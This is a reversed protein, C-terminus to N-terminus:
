NKEEIYNDVPIKIVMKKGDPSEVRLWITIKSEIAEITVSGNLSEGNKESMDAKMIMRGNKYPQKWDCTMEKVFGRLTDMVDDGHLIMVEKKNTYVMVKVNKTDQINGAEDMFDAKQASWSIKKDCQAFLSINFAMLVALVFAIKKM